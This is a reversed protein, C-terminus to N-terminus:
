VHARGIQNWAGVASDLVVDPRDTAVIWALDFGICLLRDGSPSLAFDKCKPPMTGTHQLTLRPRGGFQALVGRGEPRDRRWLSHIAYLEAELPRNAAAANRAQGLLAYALAEAEADKAQTASEESAIARSRAAATRYWGVSVAISSALLGLAAIMM